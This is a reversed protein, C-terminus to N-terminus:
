RRIASEFRGPRLLAHRAPPIRLQIDTPSTPWRRGRRGEKAGERHQLCSGAAPAAWDVPSRMAGSISLGAPLPLALYYVAAPGRITELAMAMVVPLLRISSWLPPEAAGHTCLMEERRVSGRRKGGMARQRWKARREERRGATPRPRAASALPREQGPSCHCTGTAVRLAM